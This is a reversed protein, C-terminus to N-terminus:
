CMDGEIDAPGIGGDMKSIPSNAAFVFDLSEPIWMISVCTM